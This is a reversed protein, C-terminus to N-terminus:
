AYHVGEKTQFNRFKIVETCDVPIGLASHITTGSINVASVGTPAMLLVSPKELDKSHYSLTKSVSAYITKILHSKGTGAGGTIFIYQPLIEVPNESSQNAIYKRAWCNVVNFVSRQKENLSRILINIEDDPMINFVTTGAPASTASPENQVQFDIIDDEVNECEDENQTDIDEGLDDNEQEAFSDTRLQFTYNLLATDVLDGWPEYKVKNENVIAQVNQENLKSFYTNDISSVLESEKRFPFFLM